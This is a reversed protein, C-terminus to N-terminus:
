YSVFFLLASTPKTGLLGIRVQGLRVLVLRRKYSYQVLLKRIIVKTKAGPTQVTVKINM